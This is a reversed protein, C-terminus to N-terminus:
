RHLPLFLCVGNTAKRTPKPRDERQAAARLAAYKVMLVENFGASRLKSDLFFEGQSSCQAVHSEKRREQQNSM